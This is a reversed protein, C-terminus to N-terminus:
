SPTFHQSNTSNHPSFPTNQHAFPRGSHNERPEPFERGLSQIFPLRCFISQFPNEKFTQRCIRAAQPRDPSHIKGIAFPPAHQAVLHFKAFIKDM